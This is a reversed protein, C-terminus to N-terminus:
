VSSSMRDIDVQCSVRIQPLRSYLRDYYPGTTRILRELWTVGKRVSIFSGKRPWLILIGWEKKAAGGHAALVLVLIILGTMM